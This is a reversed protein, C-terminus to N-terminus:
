FLSVLSVCSLCPSVPACTRKTSRQSFPLRLWSYHSQWFIWVNPVDHNFLTGVILLLPLYLLYYLTSISSMSSTSNQLYSWLFAQANWIVAVAVLYALLLPTHLVYGIDETRVFFFSWILAPIFAYRQLAFTSLPSAGAEQIRRETLAQVEFGMGQALAYIDPLSNM